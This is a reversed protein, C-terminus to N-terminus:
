RYSSIWIPLLVHKFTVNDHNVAFSHIRQHDGGIDQKIHGRITGEMIGKAEEFGEDLPVQYAEAKYGALYSEDFSQLNPLDWPELADALKKPLSRSALVLVDDFSDFVCGSAHYWRTKRVRRTKTVTKGDETETYTETDWYDEGREGEYFCTTDADYTWHPIYIGQLRTSETRALMKLKTPAFWLSALWNRFTELATKRDVDFPLVGKPRIVRTSKGEAVIPTGCFACADATVSPDLTTEAACATCKVTVAEVTDESEALEALYAHFDLEVIDEASQPIPTEHACYPCKIAKATPDFAMKAGCQACPFEKQGESTAMPEGAPEEAESNDLSEDM